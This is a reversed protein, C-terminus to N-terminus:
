SSRISTKACSTVEGGPPRNRIAGWERTSLAFMSFRGARLGRLGAYGRGNKTRHVTRVSNALGRIRQCLANAPPEVQPALHLSVCVPGVRQKVSAGVVIDAPAEDNQRPSRAPHPTPRTQPCPPTTRCLAGLAAGHPHAPALPRRRARPPTGAPLSAGLNTSLIPDRRGPPQRSKSGTTSPYPAVATRTSPAVTPKM